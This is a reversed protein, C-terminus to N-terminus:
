TATDKRTHSNSDREPCWDSEASGRKNMLLHLDDHLGFLTREFDETGLHKMQKLAEGDVPHGKLREKAM